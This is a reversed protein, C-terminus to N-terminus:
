IISPFDSELANKSIDSVAILKANDVNLCNLLHVKGISGLGILGLNIKEM